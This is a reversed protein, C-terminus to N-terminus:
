GAECSGESGEPAVDGWLDGRPVRVVNHSSAHLLQRIARREGGQVTKKSVTLGQLM